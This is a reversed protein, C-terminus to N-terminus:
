VVRLLCCVELQQKLSAAEAEQEQAKLTMATLQARLATVQKAFSEEAAVVRQVLVFM